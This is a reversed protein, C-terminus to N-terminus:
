SAVRRSQGAFRKEVRMILFALVALAISAVLFFGATGLMTGVTVLYVFVLQFGFAVYATWRLVANDRGALILAAVIGAMTVISAALFGDEEVLAWQFISMAVLFGILAHVTLGAGMGSLREAAQPYWKSWAFLAASLVALVAAIDLSENRVYLCLAFLFLSLLVLHRAAVSATWFSIAWLAIAVLPYYLPLSTASWDEAASMIMWGAALLVASVTLPGSRLAIAAFGTCATWVLVAQAEDGSLHYMQGILSISGGFAAAGAIWAAEGFANQGRLKLVAGGLYGALIALFLMAVRAIRPIAEWNSAIFILIAAALLSAAMMALVTGFSVVSGGNREIDESLRVGLPAEILGEDVWRAIDRKVKTAYGAM